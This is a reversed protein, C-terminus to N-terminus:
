YCDCSTSCSSADGNCSTSKAEKNKCFQSSLSISCISEGILNGVDNYNKCNASCSDKGYTYLCQCVLKDEGTSDSASGGDFVAGTQAENTVLKATSGTQRMKVENVGSQWANNTYELALEFAKADDWKAQKYSEYAVTFINNYAKFWNDLHGYETGTLKYTSLKGTFIGTAISTSPISTIKVLSANTNNTANAFYVPSKSFSLPVNGTMDNNSVVFGISVGAILAIILFAWLHNSNTM